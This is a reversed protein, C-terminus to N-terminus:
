AAEPRPDYDARQELSEAQLRWMRAFPGHEGLLQQPSGDEIICGRDLVLVRDFAAITSLRHAVALVTRGRALATLAQQVEIESETDLASTAEDLIIIPANKLIARAIGIRQREGGSLKVGREGVSTHYGAPLDRIFGDCRAAVAAAFVEADSASPRSYRINEMVSRHFLSIEQPVVAIAASLDEHAIDAISTGDILIRGQEFEELRQVLRMLSSKGAGSPGVIGVSEGPRVYLSFREFVRTGNPYAFGVNEFAIEGASLRLKRPHPAEAIEHASGLVRLAEDIGGLQQGVGVLSFALDRAGHLTRFTLTSVIVLDGTTIHGLSWRHVCFVLISAAVAWLFVDHLVRVRELFM